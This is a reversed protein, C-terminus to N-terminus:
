DLPRHLAQHVVHELQQLERGARALAVQQLQTVRLLEEPLSNRSHRPPHPPPIGAGDWLRTGDEGGGTLFLQARVVGEVLVLLMLQGHGQPQQGQAADFVAQGPVYTM